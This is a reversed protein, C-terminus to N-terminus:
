LLGWLCIKEHNLLEIVKLAELTNRGLRSIELVLVKDVHNEKVYQILEIIECREDNSKAGSIKNAFIKVINLDNNLAYYKLENVQRDFDQAMTSVRALIVATKM